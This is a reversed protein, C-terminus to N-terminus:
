IDKKSHKGGSKLVSRVAGLETSSGTHSTTTDSHKRKHKRSSHHHSSTPKLTPISNFISSSSSSTTHTSYTKGQKVRKSGYVPAKSSSSATTAAKSAPPAIDELTSPFTPMLHGECPLPYCTFYEHQLAQDATYRKSPDYALMRNLLDFGEPCLNPILIQLNNYENRARATFLDITNDQILPLNSLNPWIKPNPCGLVDFIRSIQQIDTNGAFMPQHMLLEGLACGCAWIDIATNYRSSGLLLEPARYWLSVVKPTMISGEKQDYDVQNIVRSLGFDALKLTGYKDYLLNSLKVDRHIISLSHLHSLASSLQYVLSKVQSENFPYNYKRVLLELDHDCYEMVLYLDDRTSTALDLLKVCNIQDTCKRLSYIERLSTLPVKGGSEDKYYLLKKLAVIENSQINRAKYVKGYTGEGVQSIIRFNEIPLSTGIEDEMNLLADICIIFVFLVTSINTDITEQLSARECSTM